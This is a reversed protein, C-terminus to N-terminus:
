RISGWILRGAAEYDDTQFLQENEEDGLPNSLSAWPAEELRAAVALEATRGGPGGLLFAPTGAARALALEEDVGPRHTGGEETRGGIAVAADSGYGCMATRMVTLSRDRDEAQPTPIVNIQAALEELAAPSAFWRSQFATLREREAGPAVLRGAEILLPTFTPHGGFVISGGLRLWTTSIAHVALMVEQQSLRESPFAGFLLLTAPAGQKEALAPGDLTQLFREPHEVVSWEGVSRQGTATPDLLLAADFARCERQHPGMGSEVLFEDLLALDEQTPHHAFMQVIDTAPRTPYSRGGNSQRRLAYIMRKADLTEFDADHESAWTKLSRLASESIRVHARSMEFAQQLIADALSQIQQDDLEVSLLNLHPSETPKFPLEKRPGEPGLRVWVIPINRGLAQSIEHAIWWSDGAEPTEIFILVDATELAASIREQTPEGAQVDILDRFVHEEHLADLRAGLRAVLEEGDERRHCLFLRLRDKSYTPQIRSLAERAFANAITGSQDESLARRRRHDVVDFGQFEGVAGPPRRWEARLAIPLPVAGATAARDLLAEVRDSFEERIPNFFIVGDAATLDAAIIGELSALTALPVAELLARAAGLFEEAEAQPVDSFKPDITYLV